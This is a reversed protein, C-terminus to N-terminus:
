FRFRPDARWRHLQCESIGILRAAEKYTTGRDKLDRVRRLKAIILERDHQLRFIPEGNRSRAHNDFRTRDLGVLSSPSLEAFREVIRDWSHHAVLKRVAREFRDRPGFHLPMRSYPVKEKLMFMVGDLLRRPDLGRSSDGTRAVRPDILPGAIGWERDSLRHLGAEAREDLSLRRMDRGVPVDPNNLPFTRSGKVGDFMAPAIRRLVPEIAGWAGSTQLRRLANFVDNSPGFAEPLERMPVGTQLHFLAAEVVARPDLVKVATRLRSPSGVRPPVRHRIAEWSTDSLLHRGEGLRVLMDRAFRPSGSYGRVTKPFRRELVVVGSGAGQGAGLVAHARVEVRMTFSGDERVDLEVTRVLEHLSAVLEAGEPQSTDIRDIAMMASVADLMTASKLPALVLPAPAPVRMAALRERLATEQSELRARLDAMWQHTMGKNFADDWTKM